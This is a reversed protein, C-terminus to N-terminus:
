ARRERFKKKYLFGAGLLLVIGGAITYLNKGSGGTEPLTYTSYINIYRIEGTGNEPVFGEVKKDNGVKPDTSGESERHETVTGEYVVGEIGTDDLETVTYKAGKPLYQIRIYEGDKLTFEEGNAITEWALIGGGDSVVNGNRDYKVYAYDDKLSSGNPGQLTLKFKFEKERLIQTQEAEEGFVEEPSYDEGDVRVMVDKEVRLHGYDSDTTEPTLSSVSPLTFQMWCTSGSEGRETYFFNLTFKKSDVYGCTAAQDIGNGYCVKEDHRHIKEKEKDIYDWLNLYEGVSSHVGGIDCVLKGNGDGNGLFVWMDDDGFFYYELPGTYDAVLDFEVKYHM